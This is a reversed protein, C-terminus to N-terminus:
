QNVGWAIAKLVSVLGARKEGELKSNEKGVAMMFADDIKQGLNPYLGKMDTGSFNLQGAMTNFNRFQETTKLFGPDDEIVSAVELFFDSILKAHDKKIDISVIDKVMNKYTDTPEDVVVVPVPNPLVVDVSNLLELAQKGFLGAVVLVIALLFQVNKNM